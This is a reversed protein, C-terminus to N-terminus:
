AVAGGIVAMRHYAHEGVGLATTVSAPALLGATHGMVAILAGTHFLPSGWSLWRRELLQSTRATWGFQDTRWRWIHGALCVALALYPWIGFVLKALSM